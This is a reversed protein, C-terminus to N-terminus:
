PGPDHDSQWIGFTEQALHIVALDSQARSLGSFESDVLASEDSTYYERPVKVRHSAWIGLGRRAYNASLWIDDVPFALDPIDFFTEDFFHPRVAVGGLGQAIDVYGSTQYLCRAPRILRQRHIAQRLLHGLRKRLYPGAYKRAVRARPREKAPPDYSPLYASLEMGSAVLVRDPYAAAEARLSDLWDPEPVRDDDCYVLLCDQGSHQKASPLIKTAPGLDEDVWVFTALAHLDAPVEGMDGFRRYRRPLYVSLTDGARLASRLASLVPGLAGMRPPITSLSIHVPEM